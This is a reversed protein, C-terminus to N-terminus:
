RPPLLRAPDVPKGQRRIEFHLKVQDADTNGMEAIKQGRQVDQDEKVLLTQNHAYATLYTNNHKVIILNGYGRLGSGAYVVRGDAAAYVADGAKGNLDLGKNRSEDFGSLVTGSAPWAFAPADDPPLGAPAPTGTAPAPTATVAASAGGAAPAAPTTQAPAVSPKSSAAQAPLPRSTIPRNGATEAPGSIRLVQGVEIVNPNEIQNWRAIDRWSVGHDFGIKALTDGRQVVYTAPDTAPTTVAATGAGSITASTASRSVSSREEIPAPRKVTPACALLLLGLTLCASLCSPRHFIM